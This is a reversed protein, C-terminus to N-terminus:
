GRSLGLHEGLNFAGYSLDRGRGSPQIHRELHWGRRLRGSGSPGTAAAHIWASLGADPPSKACDCHKPKVDHSFSDFRVAKYKDRTSM